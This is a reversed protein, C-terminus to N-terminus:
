VVRRFLAECRHPERKPEDVESNAAFEGITKQAAGSPRKKLTNQKVKPAMQDFQDFWTGRCYSYEWTYSSGFCRQSFLMSDEKSPPHSCPSGPSRTSGPIGPSGQIGPRAVPERPWRPQRGMAGKTAAAQTAKPERPYWPLAAMPHRPTPGPPPGPSPGPTARPPGPHHRPHGNAAAGSRIEILFYKKISIKNPQNKFTKSSFVLM